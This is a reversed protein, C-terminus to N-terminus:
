PRLRDRGPPAASPGRHDTSGRLREAGGHLLGPALRRHLASLIQWKLGPIRRRYHLATALSVSGDGCRVILNVHLGRSSTVLRVQTLSWQVMRWGAVLDASAGRDINLGLLGVWLFRQAADARDGLLARAWEEAAREQGTAMQFCDVYDIRELETVAPIWAPVVAIGRTALVTPRNRGMRENM